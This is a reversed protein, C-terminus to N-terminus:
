QTKVPNLINDFHSLRNMQKGTLLPREKNLLRNENAGEIERVFFIRFEGNSYLVQAHFSCLRFLYQPFERTKLGSTDM